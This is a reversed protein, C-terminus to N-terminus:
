PLVYYAKDRYHWNTYNYGNTTRARVRLRLIYACAQVFDASTKTVTTGGAPTGFLPGPPPPSYTAGGLSIPATAPDNSVAVFSYNKLFGNPHRATYRIFLQRNGSLQVIDCPNTLLNTQTTGGGTQQEIRNFEALVPVNDLHLLLTSNANPTLTTVATGTLNYLIVSITHPNNRVGTRWIMLLDPFSWYVNGPEAM